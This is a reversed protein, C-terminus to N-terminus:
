YSIMWVFNNMYFGIFFSFVLILFIIAFKQNSSDSQNLLFAFALPFIAGFYGSFRYAMVLIGSFAIYSISSLFALWIWSRYEQIELKKRMFWYLIITYFINRIFPLIVASHGPMVHITGGYNEMQKGPIFPLIDEFEIVRGIIFSSAILFILVYINPKIKLMFATLTAIIAFYQFAISAIMGPVLKQLFDKQIVSIVILHSAIALRIAGLDRTIFYISLYAFWLYAFRINAIRSTIVLLAFSLAAMFVMLGFYDFGALSVLYSLIKFGPESHNAWYASNEFDGSSAQEFIVVYEAYDPFNSPRLAAMTFASLSGIVAIVNGSNGSVYRALIVAIMASFYVLIIGISFNNM